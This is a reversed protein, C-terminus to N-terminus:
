AKEAVRSPANGVSPELHPPFRPEPRGPRDIMHGSFVAVAPICFMKRRSALGASSVERDNSCQPADFQHGWLTEAGAEVARTYWEEARTLEKLILWAEGITARLWYAEDHSVASLLRSM